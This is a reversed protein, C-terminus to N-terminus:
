PPPQAPLSAEAGGTPAPVSTAPSAPAPAATAPAGPPNLKPAPASPLALTEAAPTQAPEDTAAPVLQVPAPSAATVPSPMAVDSPALPITEAPAASSGSGSPQVALAAAAWAASSDEPSWIPTPSASSGVAEPASPVEDQGPITLPVQASVPAPAEAPTALLNQLLQNFSPAAPEDVRVPGTTVPAVASTDTEHTAPRAAPTARPGVQQRTPRSPPRATQSEPSASAGQRRPAAAEPTKPAPSDPSPNDKGVPQSPPQAGPVIQGTAPPATLLSIINVAM